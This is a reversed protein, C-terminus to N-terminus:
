DQGLGLLLRSLFRTGEHYLGEESLGIPRIDGYHDFVGFTDGHKLVRSRDDARPSTAQIYFRDRRPAKGKSSRRGRPSRSSPGRAQGDTVPGSEKRTTM